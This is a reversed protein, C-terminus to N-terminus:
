FKGKTHFKKKGNTCLDHLIEPWIASSSSSGSKLNFM